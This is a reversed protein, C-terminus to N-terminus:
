VQINVWQYYNGLKHYIGFKITKGAMMGSLIIGLLLNNRASGIPIIADQEADFNELAKKISLIIESITTEGGTTCFKLQEAIDVAQSIDHYPQTLYVTRFKM